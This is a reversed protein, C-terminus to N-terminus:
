RGIAPPPKAKWLEKRPVAGLREATIAERAQHDSGASASDSRRAVLITRPGTVVHETRPCRTPLM